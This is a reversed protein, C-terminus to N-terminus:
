EMMMNIDQLQRIMSNFYMCMLVIMKLLSSVMFGTMYTRELEGPAFLHYWLHNSRPPSGVIAAVLNALARRFDLDAYLPYFSCM